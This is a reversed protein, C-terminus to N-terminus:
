LRRTYLRGLAFQTALERISKDILRRPDREVSGQKYGPEFTQYPSKQYTYGISPFGKPTKTVETAQVSRAFRGTQYKLAPDQMNKEVQKPLQANIMVLMQLPQAAPSGAAKRTATIKRTKARAAAAVIVDKPKISKKSTSKSHKTKHEATVKINKKSRFPELISNVVKKKKITRFSDSGPLDLLKGEKSLSELASVLAQRMGALRAKSAKNDEKNEEASALEVNMTTTKTDRLVKLDIGRGRLFNKAEARGIAAQSAVATDIADSVASEIIGEFEAHSLQLLDKTKVEKGYVDAFQVKFVKLQKAYVGDTGGIKDYRSKGNKIEFNYSIKVATNVGVATVTNDKGALRACETKVAKIFQKVHQDTKSLIDDYDKKSLNQTKLYDRLGKRVSRRSMTFNHEQKDAKARRYAEIKKSDMEDLLTTLFRKQQAVSM